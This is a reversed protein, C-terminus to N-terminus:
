IQFYGGMYLNITHLCEIFNYLFSKDNFLIKQVFPDNFRLWFVFVILTFVWRIGM